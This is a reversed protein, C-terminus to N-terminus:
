YNVVNQYVKSIDAALEVFPINIIYKSIQYTLDSANSRRRVRSRSRKM